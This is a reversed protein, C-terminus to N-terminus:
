RPNKVWAAWSKQLLDADLKAERMAGGFDRDGGLNNLLDPWYKEMPAGHAIFDALSAALVHQEVPDLGEGMIEYINKGKAQLAAATVREAAFSKPAYRYAESRGYGLVFWVPLNGMPRKRTLLASALQSVFELEQDQGRKRGAQPPGLALITQRNEHVYLSTEDLGPKDKKLRFFLKAFEARGKCVHVVLFGEWPKDKKEDILLTKTISPLAKEAAKSLAEMQKPEGNGILLFSPTTLTQTKQGKNLQEKWLKEAEAKQGAKIEEPSEARVPVLLIFYSLPLLVARM